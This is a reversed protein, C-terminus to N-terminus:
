GNEREDKAENQRVLRTNRAERDIRQENMMKMYLDPHNQCPVLLLMKGVDQRGLRFATTDSEGSVFASGFIDCADMMRYLLDRGNPHSMWIRFTERDEADRRAAEKAANDVAIPDSADYIGDSM